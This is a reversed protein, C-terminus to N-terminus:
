THVCVHRPVFTDPCSCSQVCVHRPEFTGPCLRAPVIMYPCFRPLVRIDIECLTQERRYFKANDTNM